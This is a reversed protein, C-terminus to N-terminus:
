DVEANDNGGDKAIKLPDVDVEANDKGGDETTEMAVEEQNAQELALLDKDMESKFNM